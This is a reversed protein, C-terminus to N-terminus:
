TRLEESPMLLVGTQSSAVLLANLTSVPVRPANTVSFFLFFLGGGGGGGGPAGARREHIWIRQRPVPLSPLNSILVVCNPMVRMSSIVTMTMTPMRAPTARGAYLWYM